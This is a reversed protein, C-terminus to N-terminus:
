GKEKLITCIVELAWCLDYVTVLTNPPRRKEQETYVRLMNLLDDTSTRAISASAEQMLDNADMVKDGEMRVSIEKDQDDLRLFNQINKFACEFHDMGGSISIEGCSCEVRDFTHFSELVDKCLKCKARNRV